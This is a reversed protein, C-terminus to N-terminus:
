NYTCTCSLAVNSACTLFLNTIATSDFDDDVGRDDDICIGHKEALARFKEIGPEGYTNRVYIASIYTWNFKLLVNVMARAQQDDPPMTRYFCGCRDRNSLLASSSVFSIQPMQLLRGLSAVPVSGGTNAAGIIGSTPPNISTSTNTGM